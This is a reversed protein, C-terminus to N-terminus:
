AAEAIEQTEGDAEDAPAANAAKIRAQLAEHVLLAETSQDKLGDANEGTILKEVRKNIREWEKDLTSPEKDGKLVLSDLEADTLARGPSDLQARAIDVYSAYAPKLKAEQKRLADRRMDARNIIEVPDIIPMAGFEAIKRLKSVNAKTGNASHEHVAKKSAEAVYNEYITAVNDRGGKGVKGVEITGDNAWRVVEHALKPLADTGNALDTGLKRAVKLADDFRHDNQPSHALNSM